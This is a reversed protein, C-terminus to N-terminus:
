CKVRRETPEIDKGKSNRGENCDSESLLTNRSGDLHFDRLAPADACALIYGLMVRLTSYMRLTVLTM